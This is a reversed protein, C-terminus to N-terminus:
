LDLLLMAQILKSCVWDFMLFHSLFILNDWFLNKRLFCSFFKQHVDQDRKKKQTFDIFFRLLPCWLIKRGFHGFQESYYLTEKLFVVLIIEMDRKTGKM